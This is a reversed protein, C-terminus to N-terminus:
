RTASKLIEQCKPTDYYSKVQGEGKPMGPMVQIFDCIVESPSHTIVALNSYIGSAVEESLEINMQNEEAKKTM